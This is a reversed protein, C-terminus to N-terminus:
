RNFESLLIASAMAVNLSEPKNSANFRPISLRNSVQNFITESIGNAENGMILVANKPLTSKYVNDGDMASAYIPFEVSKLYLNIDTYIVSVRTLSGMTSQVVKPNFCDVTDESCILQSVKFWDCLRIITGLNGPDNIQDLVLTLGCELIPKPKPKHFIALAQNPTKQQSIQKLENESIRIVKDSDNKAIFNSTCFLTHLELDSELLEDIGKEGEVIFLNLNNRYKKQNLNNILKIQNKSVM